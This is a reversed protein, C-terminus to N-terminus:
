RARRRRARGGKMAEAGEEVFLIIRIGAALLEDREARLLNKGNTDNAPLSSVYRGAWEAGYAQIAHIGPHPKFAYDLGKAM